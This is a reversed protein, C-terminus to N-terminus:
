GEARITITNTQILGGAWRWRGVLTHTGASFTVTRQWLRSSLGSEAEPPMATLGANAGDITLTFSTSSANFAAQEASSAPTVQYVGERIRYAKGASVDVTLTCRQGNKSCALAPHAGMPIVQTISPLGLARRLFAAMQGREIDELPCFNSNTPPNCGLTIGATAISNIDNEFISDNDDNFHDTTSAPLDLSRTMFAAMQDRSVESDPCFRNNAPPNCGRTIGAAAVANIDAEFTSSNDDTFFDTSSSPLSLARRLFAAMQGRRIEDDPCFRTNSPPNCGRTIGAEAIADIDDEFINGNDDIFHGTLVIGEAAPVAILAAALGAIVVVVLISWRRM